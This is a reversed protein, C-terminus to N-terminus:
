AVHIRCDVRLELVAVICPSRIATIDVFSQLQYGVSTLVIATPSHHATLVTSLVLILTHFAYGSTMWEM